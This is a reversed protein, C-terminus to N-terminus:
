SGATIVHTIVECGTNSQTSIAIITILRSVPWFLQLITSHPSSNAEYAIVTTGAPLTFAGTPIGQPTTFADFTGTGTNAITWSLPSSLSEPCNASLQYGRTGGDVALVASTHRGITVARFGNSGTGHTFANSDEGDLLDANLGAVKGAGASVVFPAHGSAVTLGLATAGKTTNTNTIRLARGTVASGNLITETTATNTTNLLFATVSAFASQGGAAVVLAVIAVAMARSPVFRSLDSV